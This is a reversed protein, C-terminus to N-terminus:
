QLSGKINGVTLPELFKDALEFATRQGKGTMLFLLPILLLYLLGFGIRRLWRWRSKKTIVPTQETQVSEVQQNHQESM